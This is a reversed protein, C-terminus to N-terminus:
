SSTKDFNDMVHKFKSYHGSDIFNGFFVFVFMFGAYVLIILLPSPLGYGFIAFDYTRMLNAITAMIGGLGLAVMFGNTMWYMPHNSMKEIRIVISLLTLTMWLKFLILGVCGQTEVIYRAFPNAEAMIGCVNMLNAGTFGDGIGFTFFAAAALSLQIKQRRSSKSIYKQITSRVFYAFIQFISINTRECTTNKRELDITCVGM